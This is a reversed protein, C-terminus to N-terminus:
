IMWLLTDFKGSVTRYIAYARCLARKFYRRNLLRLRYCFFPDGAGIEFRIGAPSSNFVPSDIKDLGLRKVAAATKEM